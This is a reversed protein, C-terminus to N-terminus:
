KPRVAWAVAYCLAGGLFVWTFGAAVAVMMGAISGVVSAVGNIGWLSSVPAGTPDQSHRRLGLPFPMGMLFGFPFTMAAAVLNRGAQSLPMVAEVVVPLAFAGAIVLAIVGPIIWGLARHIREPRFRGACRSGIGGALLLTFLIVVLTYIPHGLLLILRQILAVEVVIFGVGLAGFYAITRAGPVPFRRLRGAILLLVAFGIVAGVPIAVLRVAFSPIGWWQKDTAFYFPHDDNVPTARTAFADTYAAFDTRGEFLDAYPRESPRYPSWVVHAGDFGALLANTQGASLPSRTLMFVTEVPEPGYETMRPTRDSVALIHRGIESINMDRDKLFEVCNAVLRPVDSPWRIIALTGNDTLHDYYAELAERTYLYNETLSLGGSSVSAWSDVFGLIIADFKEDTRRIYNRGEDVVLRMKPHDYLNGAAGGFARVADIMLPNMEVGTVQPSGALISLVVDTGGGPGIVLVKPRPVLRLPLARFWTRGADKLGTMTGDWSLVSTEADSDIFLRAVHYDDFGRVATIRSYANWRDSVIRARPHEALLKYLAKGPADRITWTQTRYNWGALAITGVLVAGALLQWRRRRGAVDTMSLLAAALAPLIATALIATEAGLGGVVLPVILAGAAAGALDAFYLRNIDRGNVEFALSLAAGGALFPLISMLFYFNLREPAFPVQLIAYLFVQLTVSLLLCLVILIGRAHAPHRALGLIYVLFGGLGWGLLAVSIAVFTYHYWITASFIRTLMLEFMLGCASLLLVAGLWVASAREPAGSVSVPASAISVESEM